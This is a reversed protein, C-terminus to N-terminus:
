ETEKIIIVHCKAHGTVSNAVSGLVLKKLGTRGHSGMVIVDVGNSQAYSVIGKSTSPDYMVKIELPVKRAKADEKLNELMSKAINVQRDQVDELSDLSVGMHGDVQEAELISLVTIGSSFKSAIELAKEFAKESYKSGDFPVLIKSFTM